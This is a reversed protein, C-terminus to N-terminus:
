PLAAYSALSSDAHRRLRSAKREIESFDLENSYGVYGLLPNMWDLGGWYYIKRYDLHGIRRRLVVQPSLNSRWSRIDGPVVGLSGRCAKGQRASM